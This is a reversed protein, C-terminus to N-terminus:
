RPRLGRLGQAERRHNLQLLAQPEASLLRVLQTTSIALREAASQVTWDEDALVDLAEALMAPIDAHELNVTLRRSLVRSSWRESPRTDRPTRVEVALKMRLRRLAVKQNQESSRRETAEAVLGTPGHRLRVGTEVKNRRQGGPGSRRLRELDCDQLLQAPDLEAPHTPTSM